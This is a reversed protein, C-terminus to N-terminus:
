LASIVQVRSVLRIDWEACSEAVILVRVNSTLELGTGSGTHKAMLMKKKDLVTHLPEAVQADLPSAIVINVPNKKLVAQKLAQTFLGSEGFLATSGPPIVISESGMTADITAVVKDVHLAGVIAIGHRWQATAAVMAAAREETTPSDVFGKPLVADVGFGKKIQELVIARDPTTCRAYCIAGLTDALVQAEDEFSRASGVAGAAVCVSKLFRFGYYYHVQESTNQKCADVVDALTKGLPGCRTFGECALMVQTILGLDPLTMQTQLTAAMLPAPLPGDHAAYPTCPTFTCFCRTATAEAVPLMAESALQNFKHFVVPCCAGGSNLSANIADGPAKCLSRSTSCDVISAVMGLMSFTDKITEKAGTGPPGIAAYMKKTSLAEFITARMERTLKTCVVTSTAPLDDGVLIEHGGCRCCITGDEYSYYRMENKWIVQPNDSAILDEIVHLQEHYLVLLNNYQRRAADELPKRVATIAASQMGAVKTKVSNLQTKPDKLAEEVDKTFTIRQLITSM